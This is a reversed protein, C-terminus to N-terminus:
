PFAVVLPVLMEDESVGGHAGVHHHRQEGKIWDKITFRGKMVLTYDGVRQRLSAHAEGIGFWEQEVLRASEFIEAYDSLYEAVYSEFQKEHGRQVYCYAVRREGCLPLLLTQALEPHKELEITREIDVFGHDATLLVASGTGRMNVLFEGFLSDLRSFLDAVQASGIGHQHALTDLEPYYAYIFKRDSRASAAAEIARFLQRSGDYGIRQARGCHRVNFPSDVIHKPSVVFSPVKFTDFLPPLSFLDTPSIGCENLQRGGLRAKFPLPAIVSATERFWTFWGTLGHQQAAVGTLFATIATATTSPFLSTMQSKLHDRLRSKGRQLLFNYGLGDIVILIVNRASALDAAPLVASPPYPSEAGGLARSITTMLNVISGGRYDPLVM